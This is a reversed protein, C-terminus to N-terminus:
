YSCVPPSPLFVSVPGNSMESIGECSVSMGDRKYWPGEQPVLPLRENCIHVRRYTEKNASRYASLLSGLVTMTSPFVGASQDPFSTLSNLPSYISLSPSCVAHALIPDKFPSSRLWEHHFALTNFRAGVLVHQEQIYRTFFVCKAFLTISWSPIIGPRIGCSWVCVDCGEVRSGHIGSAPM